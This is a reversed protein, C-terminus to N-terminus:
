RCKVDYIGTLRAQRDIAKEAEEKAKQENYGTVGSAANAIGGILPINGLGFAGAQMAAAGGVYTANNTMAASDAKAIYTNLEEIEAAIEACTMDTDNVKSVMVQDQSGTTQCGALLIGAAALTTVGFMNKTKM